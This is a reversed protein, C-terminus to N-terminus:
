FTLLISHNHTITGLNPILPSASKGYQLCRSVFHKSAHAYRCATEVWMSTQVKSRQLIESVLLLKSIAM